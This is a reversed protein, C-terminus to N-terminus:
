VLVGFWILPLYKKLQILNQIGRFGQESDALSLHPTFLKGYKRVNPVIRCSPINKGLDHLHLLAGIGVICDLVDPIKCKDFTEIM